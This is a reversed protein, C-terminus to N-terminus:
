GNEIKDSRKREFVEKTKKALSNITLPKQIFDINDELVGHHAIVSRTYGSMFLVKLNPSINSLLHYVERGNMNPMVVDTLLMDISNNRDSIISVAEDPSTAIHVIYGKSELIRAATRRVREDDEVILINGTGNLDGNEASLTKFNDIEDKALPLCLKFTTGRNLESYVWIHGGHQKIIGHVTSLGLGTGKGIEKTTFFPDFIKEIIEQSIGDGTDSVALMIYKGPEVDPHSETYYEDFDFMATEIKIVGGIPMADQANVVLNMLIQEIQSVDVKVPGISKDCLFEVEIDDRITRKIISSFSKILDNINVTNIEFVQKRSFALLQRTLDAARRATIHIEHLDEYLPNSPDMDMMALDTNGIIPTLLNNFDHAIGGTLHGISEIKQSQRLQDELAKQESIDRIIGLLAKGKGYDIRSISAQVIHRKGFKDVLTYEYVLSQREGSELLNVQEKHLDRDEPLVTVSFEFEPSEIEEVTFRTLEIFRQNILDFKEDYIIFIADNSQEIVSRFKSESKKLVREAKKRYEINRASEIIQIVEGKSDFIPAALVEVAVDNGQNDKHVHEVTVAKKHDIVERIPCPHKTNNCPSESNHSIHHCKNGLKVPNVKSYEVAERNSLAVSYDRNIVMLQDPFGDIVTQMFKQLQEREKIQKEIGGTSFVLIGYGSLWIIFIYLLFRRIEARQADFFPKTPVYVGVGGRIDGVKYGQHAHCKLCSEKVYLPRMLRLYPDSDGNTFESLEVAGNEFSELAKVEWKDPTNIPNIPMLSTIRGKTGYLTEYDEMMQRVMYAPNMLTLSDGSATVIDRSPIHNLAPNPRTRSDVPVYVGGHSAGWFRFAQDKLFHARAENRILERTNSDKLKITWLGLVTIILTWALALVLSFRLLVFPVKSEKDTKRM